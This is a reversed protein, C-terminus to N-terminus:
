PTSVPPPLIQVPQPLQDYLVRLGVFLERDTARLTLLRRQLGDEAPRTFDGGRIVPAQVGPDRTSTDFSRTWEAVNGGLGRIGYRSGDTDVQSVPRWAPAASPTRKGSECGRAALKWEDEDPLRGGRWRAFAAADWYDINFVPSDYGLVVGHYSRGQRISKLVQEWDAPTHSRKTGPQEPEDFAGPQQGAAELFHLYEGISAETVALWFLEGEAAVEAVLPPQLSPPTARRHQRIALLGVLLGVLALAGAGLGIWAGRSLTARGGPAAMSLGWRRRHQQWFSQLGVWGVIGGDAVQRAAEDLGAKLESEGAHLVRVVSTLMELSRAMHGPDAAGECLPHLMRWGVEPEAYFMAEKLPRMALGDQEFRACCSITSDMLRVLEAESVPTRGQMLEDVRKGSLLERTYYLLGQEENVEYVAALYPDPHSARLRVVEMLEERRSPGATEPDLLVLVVTRNISPQFAEYYILDAERGLEARLQYEGLWTEM